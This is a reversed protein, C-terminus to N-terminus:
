SLTDEGEEQPQYKLTLLAQRLREGSAPKALLNKIGVAEADKRVTSISLGTLMLRAPKYRIDKDSRIREALQLGDMIPMDHDIIIFDYPQGISIQNRMM